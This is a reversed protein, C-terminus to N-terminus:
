NRCVLPSSDGVIPRADGDMILAHDGEEGAVRNIAVSMIIEGFLGFSPKKELLLNSPYLTLPKRIGLYIDTTDGLGPVSGLMLNVYRTFQQLIDETVEETLERVLEPNTEWWKESLDKLGGKTVTGTFYTEPQYVHKRGLAVLSETVDTELTSLSFFYHHAEVDIRGLEGMKLHHIHVKPQKKDKFVQKILAEQLLHDLDSETIELSTTTSMSNEKDKETPPTHTGPNVISTVEIAGLRWGKVPRQKSM